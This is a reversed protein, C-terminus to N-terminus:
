IQIRAKNVGINGRQSLGNYRLRIIKMIPFFSVTFDLVFKPYFYRQDQKDYAAILRSPTEIEMSLTPILIHRVVLRHPGYFVTM